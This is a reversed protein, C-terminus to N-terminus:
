PGISVERRAIRIFLSKLGRIFLFRKLCRDFMGDLREMLSLEELLHETTAVEGIEVLERPRAWSGKLKKMPKKGSLRSSM